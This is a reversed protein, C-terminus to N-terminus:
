AAASKEALRAQADGLRMRIFQILLSYEAAIRSNGHTKKVAVEFEELTGIFCGRTVTIGAQATFATLTGNESGVPSFWCISADGYVRADGFVQANGSVRANGAVQANGSVRADGCVWANGFVWADGYVRANGFVRADGSVWANGDHDVNTEKEVYGGIEGASVSGFSTLARIRFLTRGFVEISQDPVLEFKRNSMQLDQEAHRKGIRHPDDPAFIVRLYM